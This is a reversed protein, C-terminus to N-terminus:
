KYIANPATTATSINRMSMELTSARCVGVQYPSLIAKKHPRDHLYSISNRECQLRKGYVSTHSFVWTPRFLQSRIPDFGILLDRILWHPRPQCVGHPTTYRDPLDEDYNGRQQLQLSESSKQPPSSTRDGEHSVSSSGMPQQAEVM